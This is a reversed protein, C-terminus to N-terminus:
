YSDKLHSTTCKCPSPPTLSVLANLAVVFESYFGLLYVSLLSDAARSLVILSNSNLVSCWSEACFLCMLLAGYGLCVLM